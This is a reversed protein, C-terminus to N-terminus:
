NGVLPLYLLNTSVAPEETPTLGTPPWPPGPTATPTDTPTSTETATPTMTATDTPTVTPTDTPTATPTSTETLTPSPTNTPTATPTNTPTATPTPTAPVVHTAMIGISDFAYYYWTAAFPVDFTLYEVMAQNEQYAYPQLPDNAAWWNIRTDVDDDIVVMYVTTGAELAGLSYGAHYVAPLNCSGACAWVRERDAAQYVVQGNGTSKGAELVFRFPLRKVIFTQYGSPLVFTNPGAGLYQIDPLDDPLAVTANNLTSEGAPAAESRVTPMDFVSFLLLLGLFSLAVVPSKKAFKWIM